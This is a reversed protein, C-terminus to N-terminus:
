EALTETRRAAQLDNLLSRVIDSDPYSAQLAELEQEAADLIGAEGYAIALGLHSGDAEQIAQELLTAEGQSM